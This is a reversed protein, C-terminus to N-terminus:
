EYVHVCVYLASMCADLSSTGVCDSVYVYVCVCVRVCGCVCVGVGGGVCVREREQSWAHRRVEGDLSSTEVYCTGHPHSAHLLLLDAPIPEDRRLRVIDGVVVAEWAVPVWQVCVFSVDISLSKASV